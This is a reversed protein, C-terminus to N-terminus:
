QLVLKGTIIRDKLIIRVSYIGRPNGSLNLIIEKEKLSSLDESLIMRGPLDFVELLLAGESRSVHFKDQGPNPYIVLADNGPRIDPIGLCSDIRILKHDSVVPCPPQPYVILELDTISDSRDKPGPFYTTYLTFPDSFTGDGSTIWKLSNYNEASGSLPIATVYRCTTTDDGAFVLPPPTINIQLTDTRTQSGAQVIVIYQTPIEPSVVPNKLASTFGAPISTWSFSYNGGGGSVEVDMQDSQGPCINPYAAIAKIVLINAFTFSGIRTHWNYDSTVPYYQQTYWFISADSPDVTMSSYDGWRAYLSAPHTQAGGGEIISQESITMQNIPDNKMRGTFRVSPYLDYGSVSYGLAINGASDLAMSGMWRSNSDPAYTSQQYLSWNGTTRRLEYWRIGTQHDGVKITHNVVMSQHDIFKRFQLRCMLHNTAPDLLVSSGKQPIGQSSTNYLEIGIKNLNGFTANAPNVWDTHFEYLGLFDTDLYAFYGPNGAPLFPGDCDAPLMCFVSQNHIFKFLVMAPSPDGALMAVRDFAGAGIGDYNTTSFWRNFTMFYADRWISFKPYDPINDFQYEWRYWSGTPDSTQSVGIFIFYPPSPYNPMFFNTIFWRDAQDDYFVTGDGSNGANPLGNWITQTDLPGLLINGSKNFVTFSLNVMHVYYNRGVDGYTDPPIATNVNPTGEFNMLTSDARTKGFYRQCISEGTNSGLNTHKLKRQFNNWIEKEGEEVDPREKKASFTAYVTSLPPSIDFYVPKEIIPGTVKQAYISCL